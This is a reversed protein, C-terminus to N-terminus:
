GGRRPRRTMVTIMIEAFPGGVQGSARNGAGLAIRKVRRRPGSLSLAAGRRSTSLGSKTGGRM